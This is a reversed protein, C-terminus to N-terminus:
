IAPITRDDFDQEMWFFPNTVRSNSGCDRDNGGDMWGDMWGAVLRIWNFNGDEEEENTRREEGIDTELSDIFILRQNPSTYYIGRALGEEKSSSLSLCFGPGEIFIRDYGSERDVFSPVLQTHTVLNSRHTCCLSVSSHPFPPKRTSFLSPPIRGCLLDSVCKASTLKITGGFRRCFIQLPPPQNIAILIEM